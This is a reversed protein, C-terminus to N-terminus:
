TQLKPSAGYFSSYPPPVQSLVKRKPRSTMLLMTILLLTMMPLMKAFLLMMRVGIRFTM